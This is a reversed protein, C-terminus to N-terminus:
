KKRKQLGLKIKEDPSLSDIDTSGGTERSNVHVKPTEQKEQKILSAAHEKAYDEIDEKTTLKYKACREKLVTPDVNLDTAVTWIAIEQHAEKAAALEEAHEVKERELAEREEKIKQAEKERERKKQLESLGKPDNRVAEEEKEAQEREWKEYRAAKEKIEAERREFDKATRGAAALADSKAKDLDAKTFTPEKSTSEDSKASADKVSTKQKEKIEDAM